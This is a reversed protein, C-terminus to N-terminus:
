EGNLAYERLAVYHSGGHGMHSEFLTFARVPFPATSFTGHTELYAGMGRPPRGKFRALTVHPKFKRGEAGYGARVVASEVKDQLHILKESAEVGAWLARMKGAKGFHGLGHFTLDFGPAQVAALAADIDSAEGGGVEGIFRLTMHLNEPKVWRAGDLGNCLAGLSMRIDTPLALGVFLRM